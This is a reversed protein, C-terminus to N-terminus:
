TGREKRYIGTSGKNKLVSVTSNAVQKGFFAKTLHLKLQQWIVLQRNKAFTEPANQATM